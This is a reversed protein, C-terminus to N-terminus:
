WTGGSGFVYQQNDQSKIVKTGGVMEVVLFRYSVSSPIKITISQTACPFGFGVISQNLFLM